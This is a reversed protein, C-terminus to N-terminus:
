QACQILGAFCVICIHLSHPAGRSRTVSRTVSLATAGTQPRALCMLCMCSVHSSVHRAFFSLLDLTIVCLVCLVCAHLKKTQAPLAILVNLVYRVHAPSTSICILYAPCPNECTLVNLVHILSKANARLLSRCTPPMASVDSMHPLPCTLRFVYARCPPQCTQCTQCTNHIKKVSRSKM